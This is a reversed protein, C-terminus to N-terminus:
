TYSIFLSKVKRVCWFVELSVLSLQLKLFVLVDGCHSSCNSPQEPHQLLPLALLPKTVNQSTVTTRPQQNHGYSFVAQFTFIIMPCNLARDHARIM